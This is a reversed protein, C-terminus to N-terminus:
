MRTAALGILGGLLAAALLWLWWPPGTAGSPPPPPPIPTPLAPASRAAGGPPPTRVVESMLRSRLTGSSRVAEPRTDVLTQAMAWEPGVQTAASEMDVLSVPPPPAPPAEPRPVDPRPRPGAWAQLAAQMGAASQFRAAPDPQTARDLVALLGPPIPDGGRSVQPTPRPASLHARLIETPARATIFHAGTLLVYGILGVAYLDTVPGVDQQRWQEPAMYRLSGFIEGTITLATADPDAALAVIGFDIVRVSLREGATELLVNAPKLDRHVFGQAHCLSLADLIQHLTTAVEGPTWPHQAAAADLPRGEIHEM